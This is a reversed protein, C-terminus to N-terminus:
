FCIGKEYNKKNKIEDYMIYWLVCMMTIASGLVMGFCINLYM